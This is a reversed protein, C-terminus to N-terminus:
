TDEPPEQALPWTVPKLLHGEAVDASLPAQKGNKRLIGSASAQVWCAPAEPSLTRRPPSESMVSGSNLRQRFSLSFGASPCPWCPGSSGLSPVDPAQILKSM